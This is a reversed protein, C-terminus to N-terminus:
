GSLAAQVTPEVPSVAVISGPDGSGCYSVLPESPASITLGVNAGPLTFTVISVTSPSGPQYPGGSNCTSKDILVWAVHGPDVLVSQPPDATVEVNGAHSNSFPLSAGAPNRLELAPYGDLTCPSQGTNLLTFAIPEQESVPSVSDITSALRLYSSQCTPDGTGFSSNPPTSATTVPVNTTTPGTTSSHVTTSSPGASPSSCAALSLGAVCGGVVLARLRVSPSVFHGQM